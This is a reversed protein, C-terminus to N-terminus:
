RRLWADGRLEAIIEDTSKALKLCGRVRTVPDERAVKEAVLKGNEERFDLVTQSVIGLRERLTKPITVQGREAVIARM